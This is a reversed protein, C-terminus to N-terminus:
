HGPNSSYLPALVVPQRWIRRTLRRLGRQVPQDFMFSVLAALALIAACLLAFHLYLGAAGFQGWHGENSIILMVPEHFIYIPYSMAGLWGAWRGMRWGSARELGALGLLLVALAGAMCLVFWPHGGYLVGWGEMPLLSGFLLVGLVLLGAWVRWGFRCKAYAYGAALGAFFYVEFLSVFDAAHLLSVHVLTGLLPPHVPAIASLIWIWLALFVWAALLPKGIYPLLCLGFMIYFAMELRLSWTAPIYEQAYWPDLLVMHLAIGPTTARYLYFMPILLALWYAPYIRCARRWWFQPMAALRGFDAHHASAMVFGSLVFFYQVGLPGPFLMNGFVPAAGGAAHNNVYPVAHSLMVLMAAIFRGLELTRLKVM